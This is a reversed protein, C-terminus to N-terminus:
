EHKMLSGEKERFCKQKNSIHTKDRLDDQSNKFTAECQQKLKQEILISNESFIM